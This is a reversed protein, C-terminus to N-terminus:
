EERRALGAAAWVTFMQVFCKPPSTLLAQWVGALQFPARRGIIQETVCDKTNRTMDGSGHLICDSIEAPLEQISHKHGRGNRGVSNEKFSIWSIAGSM